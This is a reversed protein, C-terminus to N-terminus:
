YCMNVESVHETGHQFIFAHWTALGSKHTASAVTFFKSDAPTGKSTSFEHTRIISTNCTIMAVFLISDKSGASM